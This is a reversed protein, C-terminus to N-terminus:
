MCRRTLERLRWPKALLRPSLVAVPFSTIAHNQSCNLTFYFSFTKSPSSCCPYVVEALAPALTSSCPPWRCNKQPACPSRMSRSGIVPTQPCLGQDPPAFGEQLQFSKLQRVHLPCLLNTDKATNEATWYLLISLHVILAPVRCYTTVDQKSNDLARRFRITSL